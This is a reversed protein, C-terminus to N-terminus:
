LALDSEGSQQIAERIDSQFGVRRRALFDLGVRVSLGACLRAIFAFAAAGV